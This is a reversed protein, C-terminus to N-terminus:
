LSGDGRFILFSNLIFEILEELGDAEVPPETTVDPTSYVLTLNIFISQPSKYILRKFTWGELPEIGGLLWIDAGQLTTAPEYLDFEVGALAVTAIFEAYEELTITSGEGLDEILVFMVVDDPSAYGDNFGAAELEVVSLRTWDSPISAFFSAQLSPVITTAVGVPPVEISSVEFAYSAVTITQTSFLDDGNQSIIGEFDSRLERGRAALSRLRMTSEDIELRVEDILPDAPYTGTLVFGNTSKEISIASLELRGAIADQIPNSQADEDIEWVGTATDQVYEVGAVSRRQVTFPERVGLLNLEVFILQCGDGAGNGGGLVTQTVLADADPTTPTEKIVGGGTGLFPPGGAM